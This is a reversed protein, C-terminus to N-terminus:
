MDDYEGIRSCSLFRQKTATSGLVCLNHAKAEMVDLRNYVNSKEECSKSKYATFFRHVLKGSSSSRTSVSAKM